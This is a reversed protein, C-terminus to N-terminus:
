EKFIGDLFDMDKQAQVQAQQIKMKESKRRNYALCYKRHLYRQRASVMEAHLKKRNVPSDSKQCEALVAKVKDEPLPSMQRPYTSINYNKLWVRDLIPICSKWESSYGPNRRKRPTRAVQQTEPLQEPSQNSGGSDETLQLTPEQLKQLWKELNQIKQDQESVKKELKEIREEQAKILKTQSELIPTLTESVLSEIGKKLHDM